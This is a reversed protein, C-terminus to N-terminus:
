REEVLYYVLVVLLILQATKDIVDLVPRGTLLMSLPIRNIWYWLLIQASVFPLGLICIIKRRYDIYFLAIGAFFGLGALIFSLGLPTLGMLATLYLHLLGSLAAAVAGILLVIKDRSVTM